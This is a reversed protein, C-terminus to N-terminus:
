EALTVVSMAQQELPVSQLKRELAPAERRMLFICTDTDLLYRVTM